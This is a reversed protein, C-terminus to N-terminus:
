PLSPAVVNHSYKARTPPYEFKFFFCQHPYPVFTDIIIKGHGRIDDLEDVPYRISALLSSHSLDQYFFLFPRFSRAIEVIHFKLSSVGRVVLVRSANSGHRKRKRKLWTTYRRATFIGIRARGAM